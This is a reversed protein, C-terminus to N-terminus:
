EIASPASVVSAATPAPELTGTSLAALVEAVTPQPQVAFTSAAAIVLAVSPSALVAIAIGPAFEILSLLGLGATILTRQSASSLGQTLLTKL